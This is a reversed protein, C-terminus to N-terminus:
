ATRYKLYVVGDSFTRTELLELSRRLTPPFAPKGGGVIVPNVFLHCEDVLGTEFALGGLEAGGIMIDHRSARKLERIAQPNFEGELRTNQATVGALTRSFVLKECNQWLRAFERHEPLYSEIPADWDAMTEYLRRGYVHTGIPRVLETIFAFVQEPKAWDFAGTEDEIFGDLSTNTIYVLKSM